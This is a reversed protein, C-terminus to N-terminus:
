DLVFLEVKKNSIDVFMEMFVMNLGFNHQKEKKSQQHLLENSKSQNKNLIYCDSKIEPDTISLLNSARDDTHTTRRNEADISAKMRYIDDYEYLIM